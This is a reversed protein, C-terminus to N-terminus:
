SEPKRFIFNHIALTGKNEVYRNVDDIQFESMKEDAMQATYGNGFFVEFTKKFNPNFGIGAPQHEVSSIEMMWIPSPQRALTRSAGHLLGLEAGEIDVLILARKGDATEHLIRDLTLVPVLTVYSEPINAWGKILSAGTQGGYMELIGPEASLAVPFVEVHNAWGNIRLNNMLYYLNRPIPEVAIVPKGLSLAHCCYYGINAGINILIDVDQLLRRVVQTEVVEFCGSAMNVNGALKFGWPTTRATDRRDLQDRISRALNAITPFEDIASRIIKRM